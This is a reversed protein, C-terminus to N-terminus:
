WVYAVRLKYTLTSKQGSAPWHMLRVRLCNAAQWLTKLSGVLQILCNWEVFHEWLFVIILGLTACPQVCRPGAKLCMLWQTIVHAILMWTQCSSDMRWHAWCVLTRQCHKHAFDHYNMHVCMPILRWFLWWHWPWEIWICILWWWILHCHQLVSRWHWLHLDSLLRM